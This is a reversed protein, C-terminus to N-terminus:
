KNLKKNKAKQIYYKKEYSYARSFWLKQKNQSYQVCLRPGNLTPDFPFVQLLSIYETYSIYYQKIAEVNETPSGKQQKEGKSLQRYDKSRYDRYNKSLTVAYSFYAQFLKQPNQNDTLQKQKIDEICLIPGCIFEESIM